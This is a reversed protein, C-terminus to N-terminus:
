STGITQAIRRNVYIYIYIYIDQIYIYRSQRPTTNKGPVLEVTKSWLKASGASGAQFTTTNWCPPTAEPTPEDDMFWLLEFTGM